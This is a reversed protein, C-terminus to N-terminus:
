SRRNVAHRVAGRKEREKVSKDEYPSSTLVLCSFMFFSNNAMRNGNAMGAMVNQVPQARLEAVSLM